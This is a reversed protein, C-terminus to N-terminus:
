SSTNQWLIKNLKKNYKIDGPMDLDIGAQVGKIRDKTAGWDTMVLGRYGWLRRLVDVNNIEGGTTKRRAWKKKRSLFRSPRELLVSIDM